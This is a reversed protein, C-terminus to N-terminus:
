SRSHRGRAQRAASNVPRCAHSSALTDTVLEGRLRSNADAAVSVRRRGGRACPQAAILPVIRRWIQHADVGDRFDDVARGLGQEAGSSDIASRCFRIAGISSARDDIPRDLRLPDAASARLTSAPGTAASRRASRATRLGLRGNGFLGRDRSLRAARCLAVNSHMRLFMHKYKLISYRRFRSDRPASPGSGWASHRKQGGDSTRTLEPEDGRGIHRLRSFGPGYRM